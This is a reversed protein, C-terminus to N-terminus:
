ADKTADITEAPTASPLDYGDSDRTVFSFITGDSVTGSDDRIWDLFGSTCHRILGRSRIPM